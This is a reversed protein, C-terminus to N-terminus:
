DGHLLQRLKQLSKDNSLLTTSLLKKRDQVKLIHDEISNTIVYRLTTVPHEQGLRHVRALAQDEVSPNWQPELLHVRSAATLDLGCAGCSITILIARISADSQFKKMARARQQTAVKGDIRVFKIRKMELGRQVMDLSTTWYSFVVNKGGPSVCIESILAQVKSSLYPENDIDMPIPSADGTPSLRPTALPPPLPRLLCPTANVTCECPEPAQYRFLIACSACFFQSCDSYYVGPYEPQELERGYPPADIPELCQICVEGGISLRQALLTLTGDCGVASPSVLDHTFPHSNQKAKPDTAHSLNNEFPGCLRDSTITRGTMGPVKPTIAPDHTGLNCILRLKNIQEIASLWSSEIRSTGDVADDLMDTVPLEVRRYREREMTNFFVEVIKDDRRPLNLITKTRRIMVCSLLRKLANIAEEIPGRRWLDSIDADFAASEDYPKFHLASFLGLFDTLRNQVPTGSIAWRSRARLSFIARATSTKHNRIIHAEDLIIRRWLYSSVSGSKVRKNRAECEITQYTTFVIDPAITAGSLRLRHKGHHNFRTLRRPHTHIKLQEEWVSLLSLPVVVLTSHTETLQPNQKPTLTSGVDADQDSAILAIMSLTKGLGMEDAIIGGRWIPPPALQSRGTVTNTYRMACEDETPRSWIGMDNTTPHLGQERRLFFTLAQRQHPKLQTRLASPTPAEALKGTTEFGALLDYPTQSFDEVRHQQEPGAMDFTMQPEKYITSLCQPNMYPVNRDCDIPDELYYGCQTAFYGVDDLRRRPGYFIISLFGVTGSPSKSGQVPTVPTSTFTLQLHLEGDAQLKSLANFSHEDLRGLREASMYRHVDGAPTLSVAHRPCPTPLTVNPHATVPRDVIMGFCVITDDVVLEQRAM